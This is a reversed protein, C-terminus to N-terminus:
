PDPEKRPPPPLWSSDSGLRYVYGARGLTREADHLEREILAIRAALAAIEAASSQQGMALGRNFGRKFAGSEISNLTTVDPVVETYRLRKM